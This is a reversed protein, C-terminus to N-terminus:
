YNQLIKNIHTYLEVELRAFKEIMHKRFVPEVYLNYKKITAGSPM